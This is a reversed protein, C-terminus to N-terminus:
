HLSELTLIPKRLCASLYKFGKKNNKDLHIIIKGKSYLTSSAM